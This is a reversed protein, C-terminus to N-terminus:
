FSIVDFLLTQINKM